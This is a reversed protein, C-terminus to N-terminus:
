AAKAAPPTTKAAAAKRLLDILVMCDPPPVDEFKTWTSADSTIKAKHKVGGAKVVEFAHGLETATKQLIGQPSIPNSAATSTPTSGGEVPASDKSAIEDAGLIPIRLGRRVARVFARNGAVAALYGFGGTNEMTADAEGNSTKGNPEEVNYIWSIHCQCTVNSGPTVHVIDSKASTYGRLDALEIFGALLILVHHDDVTKEKIVDAYVLKDAAAGYAAAIEAELKENKKGNFVIHVPNIMAKWNIRGSADRVYSVGKVLGTTEDRTFHAPTDTHVTMDQTPTTTSM